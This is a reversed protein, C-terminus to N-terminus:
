SSQFQIDASTQNDPQEMTAMTEVNDNVEIAVDDSVLGKNNFVQPHMEIQMETSAVPLTASMEKDQKRMKRCACCAVGVIIIALYALLTGVSAYIVVETGMQSGTDPLIPKLTQGPPKPTSKDARDAAMWWSLHPATFQWYALLDGTVLIKGVGAEEWFATTENYTWISVDNGDKVNLGPDLPVLMEIGGDLSIVDGSEKDNITLELAGLAVLEVTAGNSNAETEPIVKTDSTLAYFADIAAGDVLSTDFQIIAQQGFENFGSEILMNNGQIEVTAVQLQQLRVVLDETIGSSWRVANSSYGTKSVIVGLSGDAPIIRMIDVVNTVEPVILDKSSGGTVSVRVSTGYLPNNQSDLIMVKLRAIIYGPSVSQQTSPSQSTPSQTAPPQTSPPQTIPPQTAPPQTSPPQTAPPQTTPPQTAPPQTSPPQTSPPQTAPPKTSPPQTAPPQTSPPQTAPPQTAPPQTSPPQTLPPQTAPPQTAPPQTSPPQTSPPQTSPPQTAPPQTAPPQTAPPQTAPPQTAPPQTSPPQTSPPQTSPPQTSPPQTTPPQTSPPQTAPPQTSPPQTSPPQTSPPQTAPPQTSPPQTSPPQTTPPQTTPPQTSRPPQTSPPTSPSTANQPTTFPPPISPTPPPLTANPSTGNQTPTPFPPPISPPPPPLTPSTANHSPTPFPPTISPPPPPLTANPVTGNQTPTPYPPPISPPPPPLTPSTANHSPTPFPPTISPPPPPLTANPVTGNQTPTPFPPPISPPPPPLTPSTANHSPTPFPPTISPPPPPLTANPITGNQTPTPYPPPISPPPPPLTPSTANHSPTPFPPTISPPPPPLTANPSTANQTPTPFPPPISPPPPPLTPSTANHSPTPFPPTISPPPPPLTAIPSTANQTPTPFPPPISPTPPPMTPSTANHSPTPFPPPISPPPPPLTPSTANQSPTPFPPPISPPPPPMTPSTTNQSPTPFLPPISSPPPPLTPSTGNPSTTTIPPPISPTPPPLTPSTGNPSMTSPFPLPISPTPPPLTPSTGNPSTTTFPPPISPTPPPLTPSTGNPSMTTPFLPPISPSPPPLTPSTGNPSTSTFPPPISPTPPPLTPSTGNPSMTTTFPPPISPTPPPLTPSTGNPSTTTFPPPISPTPPPLTPSTGNPSTTTFPPPISPTPPPLTPSTGNPSTTTFPPPISPTPPPISPTPPPLTPSTGNPSTTTFPPPISPTPPPISPTPPPLTPPTGDTENCAAGSWGDLCICQAKNTCVGNGSCVTGSEVSPCSPIGLSEITVCDFDRCVKGESCMTGDAVDSPNIIDALNLDAVWISLCYEEFNNGRPTFGDPFFSLSANNCHLMGCQAQSQPGSSSDCTSYTLTEGITYGCHGFPFRAFTNLTLCGEASSSGQGWIDQCQEDRTPCRGNFCYGTNELCPTGDQLYINEPCNGSSGTCMEMIDCETSSERCMTDAPLYQCSSCCEGQYCDSGVTLQCTKSDCCPNGACETPSGCDCTEPFELIGNGCSGFSILEEPTPVNFLCSYYGRQLHYEFAELSCDSFGSPPKPKWDVPRQYMVCSGPSGDCECVRGTTYFDDNYIHLNHALGHALSASTVDSNFEETLSVAKETCISNQRSTSYYSRSREVNTGLALHAADFRITRNSDKIYQRFNELTLHLNDSITIRDENDDWLEIYTIVLRVNFPRFYLDAENVIDLMRVFAFNANSYRNIMSTSCFIALEIYKVESAVDRRVRRHHTNSSSASPEQVDVHSINLLDNLDELDDYPGEPQVQYLVHLQQTQNYHNSLPKIIFHDEKTVITGSIGNCTNLSVTSRAVGRVVGQYHCQSTQLEEFTGDKTFHRLRVGARTLDRNLLLDLDLQTSKGELRLQKAGNIKNFNDKRHRTFDSDEQFSSYVLEFQDLSSLLQEDAATLFSGFEKVTTARCVASKGWLLGTLVVFITWTRLTSLTWLRKWDM